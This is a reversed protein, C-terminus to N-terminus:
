REAGDLSPASLYCVAVGYGDYLEQAALEYQEANNLLADNDFIFGAGDAYASAGLSFVLVLAALVAIIRKKM